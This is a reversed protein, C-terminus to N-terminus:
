SNDIVKGIDVDHISGAIMWYYMYKLSLTSSTLHAHFCSVSDGKTNPSPLEACSEYIVNVIDMPRNQEVNSIQSPNTLENVCYSTMM